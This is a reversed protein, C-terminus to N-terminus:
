IGNNLIFQMESNKRRHRHTQNDHNQDNEVISKQADNKVEFSSNKSVFYFRFFIFRFSIFHIHQQKM